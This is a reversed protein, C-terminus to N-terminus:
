KCFLKTGFRVNRFQHNRSVLEANINALYAPDYVFTYGNEDETLTGAPHEYMLIKAQKM